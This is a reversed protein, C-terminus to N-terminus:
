QFTYRFSLMAVYVDAIGATTQWSNTLLQGNLTQLNYTLRGQADTSPNTLIQNNVLRQGVGWNHNLFNGFNTVDLRIQGSHRHGAISHFVDQTLSLDVRGVMPVMVANRVAYQGRHSSLYSDQEIYTEFAQAQQAATYTVGGITLPKFNMDAMSAPIFILDNGSVGDHNADGAFVYSYPTGAPHADYFMSITTAGIHFYEHSYTGQVFVRKGPTNTSYALPPLNPNGPVPNASGWSSSATSSPEIVSRSVGYAYGGRFAFGHTMPKAVTAAVNWSRDQDTNGIVYAATIQNGPANNIRTICPGIQGAAACAPGAFYPRNDVGTYAAQPQPLNANIYAPDNIDRNYIYDFTGVLGWPLRRDVGVNTRWTQPFKFNPDTVDLEYSAAYPAVSTPKYQNPNPSFPYATTNATAILGSLAGTNGIQNSIWVYPPKGTFVGTGGRLQTKSDGSVDYNFGARPSWLPSAKPLQGSNYQVSSGTATQFSLSDANPNDFTTNGFNAVDVRFGAMVTLNSRPRWEDQAYGSTYGVDLPQIPPIAQGPVQSYRVQFLALTVPSAALNPNALSANAATYFDQLTKYVYVSQVGPYFSNNSHYKEFSGGFTWSNNGSFRTINDQLQFTSYYLLNFPTFPESGFSTYGIGSGDDIEVFPFLSIQARSENQSTYGTILNNTFNGFVSNWEGIGSKINELISYNSNAFTQFNTTNTPRNVGLSASNSQYVDTSSDLQKYHFSVKNANNINYDTKLLWPKGPTNKPINNFAGTTYNYNNQLFASLTSLDSTLVRTVNGGVPVGGPNSTFTSLPRTDEQKEYAGFAFLRNKIIPGGLWFGAVTTDFTGPNFTQGAANSGVYSNSRTRYYGSGTYSNTGSRTVANLGAGVFNGQRVDYPAVSVQVQEIAELSIPAVGTRDGPQGGLGFSNNFYSGDVTINNARYDQGAFTGSGGYQPNLRAMDDIRGSVTPLAALDERMVATAAGTHTSSFVPDSRGVVTITEAVAAVKLSFDLDQAVGLSLTINNKVETTFGPLTATVTYPGGVRMGPVFFRGDAQSVAEYSTGSPQHVAVITAGPIVAGQADKVTGTVSSTTVGQANVRGVPWLLAACLLLALTSFITRSM